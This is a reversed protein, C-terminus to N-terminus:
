PMRERWPPERSARSRPPGRCSRRRCKGTLARSGSAGRRPQGGPVRGIARQAAQDHVVLRQHALHHAVHQRRRAGAPPAAARRPPPPASRRALREVHHEGVQRHGAQRAPLHGAGDAALAAPTGTKRTVPNPTSTDGSSSPAWPTSATSALGSLRWSMSPASAATRRRGLRGAPTARESRRPVIAGRQGGSNLSSRMVLGIM